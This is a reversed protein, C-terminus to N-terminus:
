SLAELYTELGEPVEAGESELASIESDLLLTSNEQLMPECQGSGARIVPFEEVLEPVSYPAGCWIAAVTAAALGVAYEGESRAAQKHAFVVADSLATTAGLLGDGSGADQFEAQLEELFEQVDGNKLIKEDWTTM